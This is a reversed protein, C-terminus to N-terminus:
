VVTLYTHSQGDGNSSWTGFLRACGGCMRCHHKRLFFTFERDCEYCAKCESDKVWFQQQEHNQGDGRGQARLTGNWRDRLWRSM